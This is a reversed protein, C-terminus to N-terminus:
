EGEPKEVFSDGFPMVTPIVLADEDKTNTNIWGTYEVGEEGLYYDGVFHTKLWGNKEEIAKFVAPYPLTKMDEVLGSSNYDEYFPVGYGNVVLFQEPEFSESISLYVLTGSLGPKYDFEEIDFEDYGLSGIDPYFPRFYQKFVVPELDSFEWVLSNKYAFGKYKEIDTTTKLEAFPAVDHGAMESEGEFFTLGYETPEPLYFGTYYCLEDWNFDEGPVVIIRGEDIDGSWSAGTYLPYSFRFVTENYDATYTYTYECLVRRTEGGDFHVLWVASSLQASRTFDELKQNYNFEESEEGKIWYETFHILEGPEPEEESLPKILSKLEEWTYDNEKIYGPDYYDSYILSTELKKGDAYVNFYDSLDGQPPYVFPAGVPTRVDLPFFMDVTTEDGTNTFIFEASVDAYTPHLEIIVEESEMQITPHEDGGIAPSPNQAISGLYGADPFAITFLFSISILLLTITKM